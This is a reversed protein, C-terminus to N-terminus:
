GWCATRASAAACQWIFVVEHLSGSCRNTHRLALAAAYRVSRATRTECLTMECLSAQMAGQRAPTM